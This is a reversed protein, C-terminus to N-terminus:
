FLDVTMPKSQTEDMSGQSIDVVNLVRRARHRARAREWKPYAVSTHDGCDISCIFHMSSTSSFEEDM